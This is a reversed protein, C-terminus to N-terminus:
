AEKKAKIKEAKKKERNKKRNKEILAKQKAKEKEKKLEEKRLKNEKKALEKQLKKEEKIAPANKKKEEKEQKKLLKAEAKEKAKIAKQEAREKNREERKKAKEEKTLPVYREISTDEVIYKKLKDLNAFSSDLVIDKGSDYYITLAKNKENLEYNDVDKEEVVELGTFMKHIGFRNKNVVVRLKRKEHIFYAIVIAAVNILFLIAVFDSYTENMDNHIKDYFLGDLCFVLYLVLIEVALFLKRNKDTLKVEFRSDTENTVEDSYIDKFANKTVKAKSSNNKVLLLFVATWIINALVICCIAKAHFHGAFGYWAYCVFITMPLLMFLALIIRVIINTNSYAYFKTNVAGKAFENYYWPNVVKWFLLWILGCLILMMINSGMTYEAENVAHWYIYYIMPIGATILSLTFSIANAIGEKKILQGALFRLVITILGILGVDYVSFTNGIFPMELIMSFVLLQLTIM